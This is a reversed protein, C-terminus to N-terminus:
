TCLSLIVTTLDEWVLMLVTMKKVSKTNEIQKEKRNKFTSRRGKVNEAASLLRAGM